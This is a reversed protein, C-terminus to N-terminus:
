PFFSSSCDNGLLKLGFRLAFVRREKYPNVLQYSNLDSNIQVLQKSKIISNLNFKFKYDSKKM